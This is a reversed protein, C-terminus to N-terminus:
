HQWGMGGFRGLCARCAAPPYVGHRCRLADLTPPEVEAAIEPYGVHPASWTGARLASAVGLAAAQRRVLEFMGWSRRPVGGGDLLAAVGAVANAIDDHAGPAHDISDRGGRATRRELGLLQAMLRPHDLLEIRGANLVPLLERYLDSKPHEAPRYDVGHERFREAPWEGGYRDGSVSSIRYTAVTEAFEAAVDSPSFPPRRERIADIIVRDGEAHGIALTMSDASGGSPDVFAAYGVGAIPQLEFRGPVTAADVVERSVFDALDSRWEALWEAAAAEPDREIAQDIV